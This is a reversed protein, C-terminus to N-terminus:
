MGKYFGSCNIEDRFKLSLRNLSETGIIESSGAYPNSFGHGTYLYVLEGPRFFGSLGEDTM